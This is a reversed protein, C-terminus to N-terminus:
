KTSMVTFPNSGKGGSLSTGLVLAMSWEAVSDQWQPITRSPKNSNEKNSLRIVKKMRLNSWNGCKQNLGRRVPVKFLTIDNHGKHSAFYACCKQSYEEFSHRSSKLINQERKYSNGPALDPWGSPTFIYASDRGTLSACRRWIKSFNYLAKFCNVFPLIFHSQFCQDAM